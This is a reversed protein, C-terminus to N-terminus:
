ASVEDSPNKKMFISTILSIILGMFAGGFVGMVFMIAPTQFKTAMNVAMEVQEEPMKGSKLIQEETFIRLQETLSPDIFKFLIFTYISSILSAFTIALVGSAIGQGYTLTGGLAKKYNMQAWIVGGILIPYTLYQSVKSFPNGTVYFVVSLLIMVIAIYVGTTLTPKWISAAKEEMITSKLNRIEVFIVSNEKSTSLKLIPVILKKL